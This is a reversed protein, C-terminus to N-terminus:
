GNYVKTFRVVHPHFRLNRIYSKKPRVQVYAVTDQFLVKSMDVLVEVDAPSVENIYTRPVQFAVELTPPSLLVRYNSAGVVRPRVQYRVWFFSALHGQIWLTEPYVGWEKPLIVPYLHLGSKGVLTIKQRPLARCSWITDSGMWQWPEVWDHDQPLIWEIQIKHAAPQIRRCLSDLPPSTHIRMRTSTPMRCLRALSLTDDLFALQRVVEYGKGEVSIHAWGYVGCGRGGWLPRLVWVRYFQSFKVVTWLAASIFIALLFLRM